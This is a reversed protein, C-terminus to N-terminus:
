KPYFAYGQVPHPSTPTRKTDRKGAKTVLRVSTNTDVSTTAKNNPYNPRGKIKFQTIVM